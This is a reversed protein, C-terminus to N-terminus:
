GGVLRLEISGAGSKKEVVLFNGQSTVVYHEALGDQTFIAAALAAMFENNLPFATHIKLQEAPYQDYTLGLCGIVAEAAIWALAAYSPGSDALNLTPQVYMDLMRVEKKAKAHGVIVFASAQAAGEEVIACLCGDKAPFTHGQVTKECFSLGAQYYALSVNEGNDEIQSNWAAQTAVFLDHSVDAVFAFKM